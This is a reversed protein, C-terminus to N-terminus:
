CPAQPQTEIRPRGTSNIVVARATLAQGPPPCFLITGAQFGGSSGGSAPIQRSNGTPVYSVRQRVSLNGTAIWGHGLGPSAHLRTEHPDPHGNHNPDRFVIWGQTWSGSEACVQGDASACVTVRQRSKIAESRALWLTSVLAQVYGQGRHSQTLATLSPLAMGLLVGLVALSALTELLTLGRLGTRAGMRLEM